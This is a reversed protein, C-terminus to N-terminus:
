TDCNMDNNSANTINTQMIHQAIETIIDYLTLYWYSICSDWIIYKHPIKHYNIHINVTVYLYKNYWSFLKNIKRNLDFWFKYTFNLSIINQLFCCYGLQLANYLSFSFVNDLYFIPYCCYHTSCLPKIM